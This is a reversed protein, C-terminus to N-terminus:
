QKLTTLILNGDRYAPINAYYNESAHLEGDYNIQKGTSLVNWGKAFDPFNCVNGYYYFRPLAPVFFTAVDQKSDYMIYPIDKDNQVGVPVSDIFLYAVVGILHITDRYTSDMPICDNYPVEVVRPMVDMQPRWNKLKECSGAALLVMLPVLVMCLTEVTGKKLVSLTKCFIKKM